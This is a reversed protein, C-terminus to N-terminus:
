NINVKIHLIQREAVAVVFCFQHIENREFLYCSIYTQQRYFETSLKSDGFYVVTLLLLFLFM